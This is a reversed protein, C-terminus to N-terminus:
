PPPRVTPLSKADTVGNVLFAAVWAQPIGQVQVVLWDGAENRGIVTVTSGKKLGGVKAYGTGPGARLNADENVAGQVGSSAGTPAIPDSESLAAAGSLPIESFSINNNKAILQLDTRVQGTKAICSQTLKAAEGLQTADAAQMASQVIKRASLCDSVANLVAAHITKLPEPPNIRSIDENALDIAAGQANVLLEWDKAGLRPNQLLESYRNMVSSLAGLQGMLTSGYTTAESIVDAPLKPMPEPTGATNTQSARSCGALALAMIIVPLIFGHRRHRM